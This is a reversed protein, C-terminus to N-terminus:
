KRPSKGAGHCIQKSSQVEKTENVRAQRVVMYAKEVKSKNHMLDKFEGLEAEPTLM